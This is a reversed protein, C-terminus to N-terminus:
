TVSPDDSRHAGFPRITVDLAHWDFRQDGALSVASCVVMGTGLAVLTSLLVPYGLLGPYAVAQMAAVAGGVAAAVWAATRLDVIPYALCAAMGAAGAVALVLLLVGIPPAAVAAAAWWRAGIGAVVGVIIAASFGVNSVRDWMISAAIPVVSASRIMGYFLIITLIDLRLLAVAVAVATVVVMTTRAVRKLEDDGAAPRVYGRWVDTM